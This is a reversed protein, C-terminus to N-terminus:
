ARWRSLSHDEQLHSAAHLWAEGVFTPPSWMMLDSEMAGQFGDLKFMVLM